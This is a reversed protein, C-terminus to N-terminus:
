LYRGYTEYTPFKGQDRNLYKNGEDLHPFPGGEIMTASLVCLVIFITECHNRLM